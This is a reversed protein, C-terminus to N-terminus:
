WNFFIFLIWKASFNLSGVLLEWGQSYVATVQCAKQFHKNGLNCGQSTIDSDRFLSSPWGYQLTGVIVASLTLYLRIRHKKRGVAAQTRERQRWRGSRPSVISSGGQHPALTNTFWSLALRCMLALSYCWLALCTVPSWHSPFFVFVQSFLLFGVRSM